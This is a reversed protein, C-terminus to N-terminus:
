EPPLPSYWEGGPGQQPRPMIQEAERRSREPIQEARRSALAERRARATDGAGIAARFNIFGALGGTGMNYAMSRLANRTSESEQGFTPFLERLRAENSQLSAGAMERAVDLPVGQRQTQNLNWVRNPDLGAERAIREAPRTRTSGIGTTIPGTEPNLPDPYAFERYGEERELDPMLNAYERGRQLMPEIRRRLGAVFPHTRTETDPAAAPDGIDPDPVPVPDGLQGEQHRPPATPDLDPRGARQAVDPPVAIDQRQEDPQQTTPITLTAGAQIRDPDEINNLRQLEPVTTGLRQAIQSLTDGPQITYQTNEQELLFNMFRKM